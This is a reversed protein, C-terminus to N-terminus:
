LQLLDFVDVDVIPRVGLFMIVVTLSVAYDAATERCSMTPMGCDLKLVGEVLM